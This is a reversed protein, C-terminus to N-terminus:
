SGVRSFIRGPASIMAGRLSLNRTYVGEFLIALSLDVSDTAGATTGTISKPNKWSSRAMVVRAGDRELTHHRKNQEELYTYERGLAWIRLGRARKDASWANRSFSATQGAVTLLGRALRPQVTYGLGRFTAPPISDGRVATGVYLGQDAAPVVERAPYALEVAGLNGVEGTWWYVRDRTRVQAGPEARRLEFSFGSSVM